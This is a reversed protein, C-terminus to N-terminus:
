GTKRKFDEDAAEEQGLRCISPATHGVQLYFEVSMFEKDRKVM